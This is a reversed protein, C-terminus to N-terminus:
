LGLLGHSKLGLVKARLARQRLLENVAHTESKLIDINRFLKALNTKVVYLPSLFISKRQYLNVKPEMFIQFIHLINFHIAGRQFM